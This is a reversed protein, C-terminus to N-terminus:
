SDYEPDLNSGLQSASLVGLLALVDHVKLGLHEAGESSGTIYEFSNFVPCQFLNAMDDTIREPTVRWPTRSVELNNSLHIHKDDSLTALSQYDHSSKHKCKKRYSWCFNNKKVFIISALNAKFSERSCSSSKETSPVGCERETDKNISLCSCVNRLPSVSWQGTCTAGVESVQSLVLKRTPCM